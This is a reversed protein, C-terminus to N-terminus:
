DELRCEVEGNPFRRCHLKGVPVEEGDPVKSFEISRVYIKLTRKCFNHELNVLVADEPFCRLMISFDRLKIKMDPTTFEYARIMKHFDDAADLIIARTEDGDM